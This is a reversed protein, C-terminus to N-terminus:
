TTFIFVNSNPSILPSIGVVDNYETETVAQKRDEIWICMGGQVARLLPVLLSLSLTIVVAKLTCLLQLSQQMDQPGLPPYLNELIENFM